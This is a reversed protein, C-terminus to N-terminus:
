KAKNQEKNNQQQKKAPNNTKNTITKRKTKNTQKRKNTKEKYSFGIMTFILYMHNCNNKGDQNTNKQKFFIATKPPKSEERGYVFICYL